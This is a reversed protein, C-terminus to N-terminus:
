AAIREDIYRRLGDPCAVLACLNTVCAEHGFIGLTSARKMGTKKAHEKDCLARATHSIFKYFIWVEYKGRVYAKPHRGKLHVRYIERLSFLSVDRVEGKKVAAGVFHEVAGPRLRCRGRQFDLDFIKDLQVNNLNLKLQKRGDIGRGFLVAAMLLRCRSYFSNLLANLSDLTSAYRYDTTSLRLRESWYRFFVGEGVLYNEISYYETQFIEPALEPERGAMIDTHDKDVFFHVRGKGRGDEEVLEYTKLVSDRGDCTLLEYARGEIRDAIHQMYFSPDEEGEFFLFIMSPDNASVALAYQHFISHAQTAERKLMEVYDM